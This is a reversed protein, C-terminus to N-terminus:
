QGNTGNRKQKTMDTGFWHSAEVANRGGHLGFRGELLPVNQALITAIRPSEIDIIHGPELCILEGLTMRAQGVHTSLSVKTEELSSRITDAWMDDQAKDEKRDIGRLLPLLTDVMAHPLLIDFSGDHEEFSFDFTSKIVEDTEDAINVLSISSETKLRDPNIALVPEWVKKFTELVINTYAHIVRLEGLTFGGHGPSQPNSGVGGFFLEVLQHVLNAGFVIAGNGQLPSASFEVAVLVGSHQACIDGFQLSTTEGCTLGMDCHLLQQTHKKLQEAIKDNLQELRPFSKSVIRSRRPLEYASVSAYRPGSSSHVEVEGSEVGELLADVEDNTLVDDSM